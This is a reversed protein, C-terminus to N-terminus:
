CCFSWSFLVVTSLIVQVQMNDPPDGQGTTATVFLVLKEHILNIQLIPLFIWSVDLFAAFSVVPCASASVFPYADLTAVRVNFHRKLACRGLREAVDQATGTQSGYLVVLHRDGGMRSSFLRCFFLNLLLWTPTTLPQWFGLLKMYAAKLWWTYWNQASHVCCKSDRVPEINQM